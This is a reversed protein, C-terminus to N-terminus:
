PPAIDREDFKAAEFKEFGSMDLIHECDQAPGLVRAIRDGPEARKLQL